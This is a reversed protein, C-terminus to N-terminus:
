LPAFILWARGSIWQQGELVIQKTTGALGEHYGNCNLNDGFTVKLCSKRKTKRKHVQHM